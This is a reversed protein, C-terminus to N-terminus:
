EPLLVGGDQWTSLPRVLVRLRPLGPSLQSLIGVAGPCVSPPCSLFVCASVGPSFDPAVFSLHWGEAWAGWGWSPCLGRGKLVSGKTLDSEKAVADVTLM